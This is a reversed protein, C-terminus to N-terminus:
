NNKGAVWWEPLFGLYVGLGSVLSFIAYAIFLGIQFSSMVPKVIIVFILLSFGIITSIIASKQDLISDLILFAAFFITISYSLDSPHHIYIANEIVGFLFLVLFLLGLSFKTTDRIKV